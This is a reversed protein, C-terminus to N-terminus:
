WDDDNPCSVDVYVTTARSPPADSRDPNHIGTVSCRDLSTRTYGFVWNVAVSYGQAWLDAITAAASESGAVPSVPDATAPPAASLAGAIVIPVLVARRRVSRM